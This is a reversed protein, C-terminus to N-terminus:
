GWMKSEWSSILMCLYSTKSSNLSLVHLISTIANNSYLYTHHVSNFTVKNLPDHICLSQKIKNPLSAFPIFNVVLFYAFTDITSSM